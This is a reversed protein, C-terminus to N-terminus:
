LVSCVTWHTIGRSVDRPVMERDHDALAPRLSVVDVTHRRMSPITLMARSNPAQNAYKLTPIKRTPRTSDRAPLFLLLDDIGCPLLRLLLPGLVSQVFHFPM